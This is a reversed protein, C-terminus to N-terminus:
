RERLSPRLDTEDTLISPRPPNIVPTPLPTHSTLPATTTIWEVWDQQAKKGMDGLGPREHEFFIMNHSKIPKSLAIDWVMWGDGGPLTYLHLCASGKSSLKGGRNPSTIRRWCKCGFTRLRHYSTSIGEFLSFPTSAGPNPRSPSSNLAALSNRTSDERFRVPLNSHLLTLLIQNIITQNFREVKSHLQPSHPPGMLHQIGTEGCFTEWKENAYQGGNDTRIKEVKLSTNQEAWRVYHMFCHFSQSKSKLFYILGYNTYDDLFTIMYKAGNRSKVPLKCLDSHVCDLKQSVRHPERSKM